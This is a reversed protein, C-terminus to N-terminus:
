KGRSPQGPGWVRGPNDRDLDRDGPRIGGQLEDKRSKIGRINDVWNTSIVTGRASTKYIKYTDGKDWVGVAEEFHVQEAGFWLTEEGFTIPTGLGDTAWNTTIETATVTLILGRYGKTYNEIALGVRAGFAKFDADMDRLVTASDSGDHTSTILPEDDRHIETTGGSM